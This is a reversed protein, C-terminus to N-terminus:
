FTQRFKEGFNNNINHNFITSTAKGLREMDIETQKDSKLSFIAVTCLAIGGTYWNYVSYSINTQM